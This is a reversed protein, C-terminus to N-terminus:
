YFIFPGRPALVAVIVVSCLLAAAIAVGSAHGSTVGATCVVVFRRNLALFMLTALVAFLIGLGTGYQRLYDILELRALRMAAIVEDRSLAVAGERWIPAEETTRLENSIRERREAVMARSCFGPAGAIRRRA